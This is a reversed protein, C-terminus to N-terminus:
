ILYQTSTPFVQANYLVDDMSQCKVMYKYMKLTTEKDVDVGIGDPLINGQLDMVQFMPLTSRDKPNDLHLKLTVPTSNCASFARANVGSRVVRRIALQM